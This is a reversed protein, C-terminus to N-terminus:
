FRLPITLFYGKNLIQIFSDPIVSLIRHDQLYLWLCCHLSLIDAKAYLFITATRKLGYENKPQQGFGPWTLSM